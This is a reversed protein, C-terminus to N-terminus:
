ATSGRRDVVPLWKRKGGGLVDSFRVELRILDREVFYDMDHVSLIVREIKQVSQVYEMPFVFAVFTQAGRADVCIQFAVDPSVAESLEQSFTEHSVTYGYLSFETTTRKLEVLRPSGRGCRCPEETVAVIDGTKYKVLPQDEFALTTWVAEGVVTSDRYTPNVISLAAAEDFIHLGAHEGCEGAVIGIETAGYLSFVEVGFRSRLHNRLAGSMSEGVYVLKQLRSFARDVLAPTAQRLLRSLLTPVTILGTPRSEELARWTCYGDAAAALFEFSRVGVDLLAAGYFAYLESSDIDIATVEDAHGFGCSTFFRSAITAEAAEDESTVFRTKPKGSTGSSHDTM